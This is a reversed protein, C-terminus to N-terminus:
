SLALWAAVGLMLTGAIRNILRVKDGRRLLNGLTSGGSAYILLCIFELVLIIGLLVTMQPLLPKSQNIFPPLLAIFFAWGKPNAVATMFGQAILSPASIATQDGASPETLAMRGRARWMQIGLYALYAGGAYKFAQFADPYKLMFAAIGLVVGIAVLGVACLEGLMMWLTRRVGLAMGMTLALTMCMGPTISVFFFTPVFLALLSWDIM